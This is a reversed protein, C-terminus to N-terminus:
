VFSFLYDIVVLDLDESVVVGVFEVVKGEGFLMVLKLNNIWVVGFNVIDLNIVVSFGFVEEM